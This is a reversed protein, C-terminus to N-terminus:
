SCFQLMFNLYPYLAPSTLMDTAPKPWDVAAPAAPAPQGLFQSLTQARYGAQIKKVNALDAPNFLQTRFLLYAFETESRIATKVGKPTDGKWGPGAILFTGGDNGAFGAPAATGDINGPIDALDEPFNEGDVMASQDGIRDAPRKALRGADRDFTGADDVQCQAFIVFAEREAHEIQRWM